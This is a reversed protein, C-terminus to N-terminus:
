EEAVYFRGKGILVTMIYKKSGSQILLSGFKSVSGSPTFKFTLPLTLSTINVSNTYYRSVIMPQNFNTRMYYYHQDNQIYVTVDQQHSVAYQQSYLFDAQFQTLFQESVNADYLPKLSFATISSIILFVSFVVLSEILTFGQENAIM